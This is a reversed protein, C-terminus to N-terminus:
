PADGNDDLFCVDDWMSGVKSVVDENWACCPLGIMEIWVVRKKVFFGNVIPRFLSIVCLRM